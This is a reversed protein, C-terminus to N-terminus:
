FRYRFGLTLVPFFGFIDFDDELNAQETALQTQLTPNGSLTGGSSTLSVRADGMYYLGLRFTFSFPGETYHASDYGLGVFPAVKNYRLEGSLTGVQSPTFSMNGITVNSTPTSRLDAQNGNWFAGASLMFSTGFPHMDLAGGASALDVDVNYPVGSHTADRSFTFYNGEGRLVLWDSLRVSVDAGPGLTSVHPGVAVGQAHAPAFGGAAAAAAIALLTFLKSPM